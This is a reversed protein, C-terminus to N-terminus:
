CIRAGALCASVGSAELQSITLIRGACGSAVKVHAGGATTSGPVLAFVDDHTDRGDGTWAKLTARDRWGKPVVALWCQYTEPGTELALLAHPKVLELDSADLADLRVLITTEDEEALPRLRLTQRDRESEELLRPLEGFLRQPDLHSGLELVSHGPGLGAYAGMYDLLAPGGNNAYIRGGTRGSESCGSDDQSVHFRERVPKPLVIRGAKDIKVKM